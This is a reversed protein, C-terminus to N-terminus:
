NFLTPQALLLGYLQEFYPTIEPSLRVKHVKIEHLQEPRIGEKKWTYGNHLYIQMIPMIKDLAYVFKAEETERKEYLEIHEHMDPFDAWDAKLKELAAAEREHKTALIEADAYVYTDGAHVEVLDHVLALRIVLDRNLKPFYAALFWATIALNYSHEADNEQVFEMRQNHRHTIREIQSFQLLLKQLDLIRHIDPQHSM